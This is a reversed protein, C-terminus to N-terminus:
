DDDADTPVERIMTQSPYINFTCDRCGKIMVNTPFSDYADALAEIQETAEDFGETECVIKVKNDM